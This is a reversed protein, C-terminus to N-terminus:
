QRGLSNTPETTTKTEAKKSRKKKRQGTAAGSLQSVAQYYTEKIRQDTLNDVVGSKEESRPNCIERVLPNKLPDGDPSVEPLIKNWGLDAWSKQSSASFPDLWYAEITWESMQYPPTPEPQELLWQLAQRAVEIYQIVKAALAIAPSDLSVPRGPKGTPYLKLFVKSGLGVTKALDENFEKTAPMESIFGPIALHAEAWPRISEPNELMLTSLLSTGETLCDALTEIASRNGNAALMSLGRLLTLAMVKLSEIDSPDGSREASALLQLMNDKGIEDLDPDVEETGAAVNDFFQARKRFAKALYLTVTKKVDGQASKVLVRAWNRLYQAYGAAIGLPPTPVGHDDGTIEFPQILPGHNEELRLPPVLDLYRFVLPMCDSPIPRDCVNPSQFTELLELPHGMGTVRANRRHFNPKRKTIQGHRGM